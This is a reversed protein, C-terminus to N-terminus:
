SFTFNFSGYYVVPVNNDVNTFATSKDIYIRIMNDSVIDATVTYGSATAYNTNASNNDLYGNPGRLYGSLSTVTITTIRALSKPTFMGLRIATSSSTILGAMVASSGTKYRLTDGPKYYMLDDLPNLTMSLAQNNNAVRIKAM